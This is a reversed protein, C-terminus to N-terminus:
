ISRNGAGNSDTFACHEGGFRPCEECFVVNGVLEILSIGVCTFKWQAGERGTYHCIQIENSLSVIRVYAM